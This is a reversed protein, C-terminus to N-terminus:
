IELVFIFLIKKPSPIVPIINRLIRRITRDSLVHLSLIFNMKLGLIENIVFGTGNSAIKFVSKRWNM